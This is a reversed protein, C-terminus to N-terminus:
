NSYFADEISIKLEVHQLWNNKSQKLLRKEKGINLLGDTWKNM